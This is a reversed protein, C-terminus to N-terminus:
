KRFFDLGTQVPVPLNTHKKSYVLSFEETRPWLRAVLYFLAYFLTFLLPWALRFVLATNPGGDALRPVTSLDPEDSPLKFVAGGLTRVPTERALFWGLSRAELRVADQSTRLAEYRANLRLNEQQLSAVRQDLLRKQDKLRETETWGTPGFFIQLLCFCATALWACVVLKTPNM